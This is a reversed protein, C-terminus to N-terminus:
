KKLYEKASYAARAGDSVATAVQRLKTKRDDGAAFLGPSVTEMNENTVIQGREDLVDKIEIFDTVPNAGVYVFLAECDVKKTSNDTVNQITLEQIKRNGESDIIVYPTAIEINKYKKLNNVLQEDARFENRRHILTVKSCISALYACEEVASNGGGLVAVHKNRYLPGDCVACRSIGRAQYKDEGPVIYEKEKLGTAIIVSKFYYEEQGAIVKYIDDIKEIKKVTKRVVNIENFKVQEELKMALDPGMGMFGPYNQIEYTVNVKGGIMMPEFCIPEFGFRKLYIAATVGAPGMGVVCVDNIQM